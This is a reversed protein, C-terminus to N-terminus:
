RTRAPPQSRGRPCSAVGGCSLNATGCGSAAARQAWSRGSPVPRGDESVSAFPFCPRRLQRVEHARGQARLADVVRGAPVLLSLGGGDQSPQVCALGVVAHPRELHASDTHFPFADPSRSRVTGSAPGPRVDWVLQGPSGNDETSAVGTASAAIVLASDTMPVAGVVVAGERHLAHAAAGLAARLGPVEAYLEGLACQQSRGDAM